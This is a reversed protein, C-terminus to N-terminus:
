GETSNEVIPEGNEVRIKLFRFDGCYLIVKNNPLADKFVEGTHEIDDLSAEKDVGILLIEGPEMKLTRVERLVRIVEKLKNM